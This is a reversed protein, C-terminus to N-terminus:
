SKALKSKEHRISTRAFEAYQSEPYKELLTDYLRLAARPLGADAAKGAIELLRKQATLSDGGLVAGAHLAWAAELFAGRGLLVRGLAEWQAPTLKLAKREELYEDFVAAALTGQANNLALSIARAASRKRLAAHSPKRAVRRLLLATEAAAPADRPNELWALRAHALAEFLAPPDLQAARLQIEELSRTRQLTPTILAAAPARRLAAAKAFEAKANEAMFAALRRGEDPWDASATGHRERQLFYATAALPGALM